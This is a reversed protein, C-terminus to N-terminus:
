VGQDVRDKILSEPFREFAKQVNALLYLLVTRPSLFSYYHNEVEWGTVEM